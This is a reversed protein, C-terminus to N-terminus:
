QSYRDVVAKAIEKPDHIGHAGFNIVEKAVLDCLPDNRDVLGLSRLAQKFACNLAEVRAPELQTDRLLRQIPM